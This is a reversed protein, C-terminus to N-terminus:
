KQNARSIAQNISDVFTTSPNCQGNKVVTVPKKKVGALIQSIDQALQEERLTGLEALIDLNSEIAVIKEQVQKQYGVQQQLCEYQAELKGKNYAYSYAYFGVGLIAIISVIVAILRLTM